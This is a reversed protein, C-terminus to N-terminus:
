TPGRRRIHKSAPSEITPKRTVAVAAHPGQGTPHGYRAGGGAECPMVLWSRWKLPAAAFQLGDVSWQDRAYTGYKCALFRGGRGSLINGSVLDRIRIIDGPRVRM